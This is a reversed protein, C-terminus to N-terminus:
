ALSGDTNLPLFVTVHIAMHSKGGRGKDRPKLSFFLSGNALKPFDSRSTFAARGSSGVSDTM